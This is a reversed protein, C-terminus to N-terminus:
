FSPFNVCPCWVLARLGTAVFTRSSEMHAGYRYILRNTLRRSSVRLTTRAPNLTRVTCTGGFDVLWEPAVVRLVAGVRKGWDFGYTIGVTDHIEKSPKGPPDPSHVSSVAFSFEPDQGLVPTM